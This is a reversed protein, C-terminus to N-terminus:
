LWGAEAAVGVAVLAVGALVVAVAIGALAGVGGVALLGGAIQVWTWRNM